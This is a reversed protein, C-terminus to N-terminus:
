PSCSTELPSTGDCTQGCQVKSSFTLSTEDCALTGDFTTGRGNGLNVRDALRVLSASGNSINGVIPSEGPDCRCNCLPM